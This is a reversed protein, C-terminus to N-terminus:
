KTGTLCMYISIKAQVKRRFFQWKISVKLNSGPYWKENLFAALLESSICTKFEFVFSKKLVVDGWFEKGYEEKSTVNKDTLLYKIYAKADNV